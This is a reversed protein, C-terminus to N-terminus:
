HTKLITITTNRKERNEGRISPKLHATSVQTSINNKNNKKFSYIYRTKTSIINKSDLTLNKSNLYVIQQLRTVPSQSNKYILGQYFSKISLVYNNFLDDSAKESKLKCIM